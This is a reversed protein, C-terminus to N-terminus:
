RKTGDKMRVPISYLGTRATMFLTQGDPGGFCLNAPAEPCLIKGILHGDGPAFIHVGDGASSWVRGAADVRIGDPGGKDITAFVRGASLTGDDKVDYALINHPKGSDAVYLTKEDPSFALGNPMNHEKSVIATAGSKPDHRFVFNGEQEKVGDKGLGYPPDTFWVSGDSKVVVDNPSNFKKGQYADVVTKVEGGADTCSIRRGSHEASVLLGKLDTTNGNTNASPTRFTEVGGKATWKKLENAPIDSFILQAKEGSGLWVPGEIFKMGGGLKTVTATATDVCKAMAAEDKILFPSAAPEQGAVLSAAAVVAGLTIFYRTNM